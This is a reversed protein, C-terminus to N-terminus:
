KSNQQLIKTGAGHEFVLKGGYEGTKYILFVGVVSLVIFIYRIKGVFKKTVTLYTRLALVFFFYWLTITAWEEHLEVVDHIQPSLLGQIKLLEEAKNGTLVAEVAGIVGLVLIIFASKILYDKNLVIGSVEFLFYLIFFAIPFHILVHHLEALFEM